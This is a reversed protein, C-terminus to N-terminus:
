SSSAFSLKEYLMLFKFADGGQHCGFCHFIQREPNVHFSPTKESHFPCLGKFSAGSAKLPVYQSVVGVIDTSSRVLDIFDQPISPM